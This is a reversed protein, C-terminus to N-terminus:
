GGSQIAIKKPLAAKSKPLLVKLVGDSMKAGINDRDIATSLNFSRQYIGADYGRHLLEAGEPEKIEQRGTITLVGEELRIEAREQNVGPMDCVVLIEEEHEYIDTPPILIPLDHTSEIAQSERQQIATENSKRSM